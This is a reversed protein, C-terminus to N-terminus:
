PRPRLTVLKVRTYGFYSKRFALPHHPALAADQDRFGPVAQDAGVATDINRVDIAAAVRKQKRFVGVAGRSFQMAFELFAQFKGDRDDDTVTESPGPTFAEGFNRDADSAHFRQVVITSIAIGVAVRQTYGDFRDGIFQSAGRTQNAALQSAGGRTDNSSEM